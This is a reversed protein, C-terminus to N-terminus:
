VHEYDTCEAPAILLRERLYCAELIQHQRMCRWQYVKRSIGPQSTCTMDLNKCTMCDHGKGPSQTFPYIIEHPDIGNEVAYRAWTKVQEIPMMTELRILEHFIEEGELHIKKAVALVLCVAIPHLNAARSKRASGGEPTPSNGENIGIGEKKPRALRALRASEMNDINNLKNHNGSKTIDTPLQDPLARSKAQNRSNEVTEQDNEPQKILAAFDIKDM